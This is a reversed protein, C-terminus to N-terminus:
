KQEQAKPLQPLPMWHTVEDLPICDGEFYVPEFYDDGANLYDRFYTVQQVAGNAILLVPDGSAPFKDQISVWEPVSAKAAQWVMFQGERIIQVHVHSHVRDYLRQVEDHSLDHNESKFAEFHWEEFEKQIDM